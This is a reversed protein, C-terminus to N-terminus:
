RRLLGAYVCQGYSICGDGFPYDRNIIMNLGADEVKRVITERIIHNICVGGSLVVDKIGADLAKEVAIDAFGDALNFQVSAAIDNISRGANKAALANKLIASTSLVSMDGELTLVSEWKEARGASAAAELKMAPEGDYTRERCIGLLASAADLVRGASSTLPM